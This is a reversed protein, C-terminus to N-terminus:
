GVQSVFVATISVGGTVERRVLARSSDFTRLHIVTALVGLTTMSMLVQLSPM